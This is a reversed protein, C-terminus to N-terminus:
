RVEYTLRGNCMRMILAEGNNWCESLDKPKKDEDQFDMVREMGLKNVEEWTGIIWQDSDERFLTDATKVANEQWQTVSFNTHNLNHFFGVRDAANNLYSGIFLTKLLKKVLDPQEMFELEKIYGQSMLYFERDPHKKLEEAEMNSYTIIETMLENYEKCFQKAANEIHMGFDNDGFNFYVAFDKKESYECKEDPVLSTIKNNVAYSVGSAFSLMLSTIGDSNIDELAYELLMKTYVEDSANIVEKIFKEAVVSRNRSIAHEKAARIIEEPYSSSMFEETREISKKLAENM